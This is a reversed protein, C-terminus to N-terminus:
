IISFLLFRLSVLRSSVLLSSFLRSSVLLSSVLRSSVLRSSFLLSSFLLSSFLHSSFLLSPFPLSSTFFQLTSSLLSSLPSLLFTVSPSSIPPFFFPTFALPLSSQASPVSTFLSPFVFFNFSWGGMEECPDATHVYVEIVRVCLGLKGVLEDINCVKHWVSNVSADSIFVYVYLPYVLLYM